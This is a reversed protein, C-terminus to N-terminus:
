KVPTSEILFPLIVDGPFSFFSQELKIEAVHKSFLGVLLSCGLNIILHGVYSDHPMMRVAAFSARKKVAAAFSSQLSKWTRSIISSFSQAHKLRWLLYRFDVKGAKKGNRRIFASSWSEVPAENREHPATKRKSLHRISFRHSM